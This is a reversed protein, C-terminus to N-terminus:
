FSKIAVFKEVTMCEFSSVFEPRAQVFRQYSADSICVVLDGRTRTMAVYAIRKEERAKEDTSWWVTSPCDNVKRPDPCVFVSVDHTEGKVSHVTQIPFNTLVPAHSDTESDNQPFYLSCASDWGKRKQPKINGATFQLSQDLGFKALEEDLVKGAETQWDFLNRNTPLGNIRLLFRIALSKWEPPDIKSGALQEDNLGEHGFVALDIAARAAALARVQHGQRFLAVARHM